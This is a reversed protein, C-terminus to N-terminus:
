QVQFFCCKVFHHHFPFTHRCKWCIEWCIEKEMWLFQVGCGWSGGTPSTLVMRGSCLHGVLRGSRNQTTLIGGALRWSVPLNPQNTGTLRAHSIYSTVLGCMTKKFVWQNHFHFTGVTSNMPQKSKKPIASVQPEDLLRMDDDKPTSELSCLFQM